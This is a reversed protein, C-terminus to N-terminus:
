SGTAAAWDAAVAPDYPQTFGCAWAFSEEGAVLYREGVTLNPGGASTIASGTMGTATLTISDRAAGKFWQSVRFTVEDGAIGAVTGDFSFTRDAVAKPSYQEVCSASIPVIPGGGGGPSASAAGPDASAAGPSVVAIAPGPTPAPNAGSVVAVLAIGALLVAAAPFVFRGWGTRISNTDMIDGQIRARIRDLSASPLNDPAVPNVSRLEELPDIEGASESM